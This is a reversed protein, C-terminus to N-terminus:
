EDADRGKRLRKFAAMAEELTTPELRYGTEESDDPRLWALSDPLVEDIFLKGVLHDVEHALARALMGEGEVVIEEGDPAIAEVVVRQPRIVTGRLTPLSLCGELGEEEGEAEVIRPNVLEITEHEEADPRVVVATITEGVQPAALGLGSAELMTESLDRLLEIIGDNINRIRSARRRLVPDGCYLIKRTAM